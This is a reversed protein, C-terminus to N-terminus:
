RRQELQNDFQDLGLLVGPNAAPAPRANTTSRVSSSTAPSRRTERQEAANDTGRQAEEDTQRRAPVRDADPPEGSGAGAHLSRANQSTSPSREARRRSRVASSPTTTKVPTYRESRRRELTSRGSTKHPTVEASEPRQGSTAKKPVSSRNKEESAQKGASSILREPELEEEAATQESRPEPTFGRIPTSTTVSDRGALGFYLGVAVACLAILALASFRLKIRQLPINRRPNPDVWTRMSLDDETERYGIRNAQRKVVPMCSMETFFDKVSTENLVSTLQRYLVGANEPRQSPSKDLCQEVVGALSDPISPLRSRIPIHHETAVAIIVGTASPGEFPLGGTLVEYLIVGFSWIDSTPGASKADKAQEPSMYYATGFGVGTSTASPGEIQRAIGFDLVKMRESGDPLRQVFLNAPKIDRHVVGSQHASAVPDLSQRVLEVAEARTTEPRALRAELSEGDLLEMALYLIKNARDYGADFVKIIGEHRLTASVSAELRFRTASADSLSSSHNLLKLCLDEKTVLHSASFVLGM